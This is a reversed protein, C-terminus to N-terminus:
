ADLDLLEAWLQQAERQYTSMMAILRRRPAPPCITGPLLPDRIIAAIVERGLELSERAAEESTTTARRVRSDTLAQALRRHSALLPEVAWLAKVEALADRPLDALTLVTAESCLGAAALQRRQARVGGRLNDPRVALGGRWSRYGALELARQHDRTQQRSMLGPAPGVVGLWGGGWTVLLDDRAAWGAVSPYTPLARPVLRYRGRDLRDLIGEGNLRKVAMRVSADTQGVYQGALCLTQISFATRPRATVLDLVLRRATPSRDPKYSM